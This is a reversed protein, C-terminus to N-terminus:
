LGIRKRLTRKNYLRFLRVAVSSIAKRWMVLTGFTRSAAQTTFSFCSTQYTTERGKREPYCECEQWFVVFILMLDSSMRWLRFHSLIPSLLKLWLARMIYLIWFLLAGVQRFFSNWGATFVFYLRVFLSLFNNRQLVRVLCIFVAKAKQGHFSRGPERSLTLSPILIKRKDEGYRMCCLQPGDLHAKSINAGLHTNLYFIEKAWDFDFYKGTIKGRPVIDVVNRLNPWISSSM